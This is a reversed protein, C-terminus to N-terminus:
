EDPAFDYRTADVPFRSWAFVVRPSVMFVPGANDQSDAVGTGKVEMPWGYKEGYVDAVRRLRAIETVGRGVGEVVVAGDDAECGVVCRPDGALNRAKRSRAGTSFYFTEDLWVGWVPVAHPAGDATTAIWYTKAGALRQRVQEWPLM